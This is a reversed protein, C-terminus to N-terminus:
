KKQKLHAALKVDQFWFVYLIFSIFSFLYMFYTIEDHLEVRKLGSLYTNKITILLFALRIANMIVFLLNFLILFIVKNKWDSNISSILIIVITTVGIGLCPQELSLWFKGLFIFKTSVETHYGFWGMIIKSIELTSTTLKNIFGGGVFNLIVRSLPTLLLLLLILTPLSVILLPKFLNITKLFFPKILPNKNTVFLVIIFMPIYILPDIWLLIIYDSPYLLQIITIIAGRFAIFVLSVIILMVSYRYHRLPVLFLLIFGVFYFKYSAVPMILNKVNGNDLLQFTNPLYITNHGVLNSIFISINATFLTYNDTCYTFLKSNSIIKWGILQVFCTLLLVFLLLMIQQKNQLFYLYLQKIYSM